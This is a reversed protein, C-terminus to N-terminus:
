CLVFIYFFVLEFMCSRRSPCDAQTYLCFKLTDVKSHLRVKARFTLTACLINSLHNCLDKVGCLSNSFNLCLMRLAHYEFLQFSHIALLVEFVETNKLYLQIGEIRWYYAILRLILTAAQMLFDHDDTPYM